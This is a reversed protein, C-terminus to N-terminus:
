GKPRRKVVLGLSGHDYRVDFPGVDASLNSDLVLVDEDKLYISAQWGDVRNDRLSDLVDEAYQGVSMSVPLRLKCERVARAVANSPEDGIVAGAHESTVWAPVTLEHGNRVAVLVDLSTSGDRVRARGRPADESAEQVGWDRLRGRLKPETIQYAAASAERLLDSADVQHQETAIQDHWSHPGVPTTFDYVDEVLPQIDRPLAITQGALHGRDRLVALTRHTFADPYILGFTRPLAPPEAAWDSVGTIYCVADPLPRNPRTHRHLRGMRQLLLDIPAVDTIMVDFDVDLSQEVVQSAVVIRRHPRTTSKPGYLAKLHAEIRLRDTHLFRAHLVDVQGPFMRELAEATQQVRAVTNRIVVACGGNKLETRLTSVLTAIDDDLPRAHVDTQRSSRAVPPSVVEGGTMYTVAPYGVAPLDSLPGAQGSHLASGQRYADFLSQRQAPPLTASLLVVPVGYAGLWMLARQLYQRMYVDAAHVEDIVVVKGALGIHRMGVHKTALAAMLVQDITGVVFNALPSKRGTMWRHAFVDDAAADRVTERRLRSLEANMWADGHALNVDTMGPVNALWETLRDFMANATAQTPLAVMVGSAGVREALIEAMAFSSETKGEGMPGEIVAMGHADMAVAAAVAASQMPYPTAINFRDHFITDTVPETPEWRPPLGLSEWGRTVRALDEEPQPETGFPLHPFHEENSAIWDAVVVWGWLLTLATSPVDKITPLAAALGPTWWRAAAQDYLDDQVDQWAGTGLLKPRARVDQVDRASAVKGHHAAVVGAWLWGQARPVQHREDLWRLLTCASILAHGARARGTTDGVDLGANTLRDLLWPAQRRPPAASDIKAQFAPSAKGVDHVGALWVLLARADRDNLRLSTTLHRKEIEPIRRDWLLGAVHASDHLHQM